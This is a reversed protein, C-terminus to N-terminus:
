PYTMYKRLIFGSLSVRADVPILGLSCNLYRIAQISRRVHAELMGALFGPKQSVVLPQATSTIM